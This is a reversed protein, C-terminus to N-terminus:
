PFPDMNEQLLQVIKAERDRSLTTRVQITKDIKTGM